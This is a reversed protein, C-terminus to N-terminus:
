KKVAEKLWKSGDRVYIITKETTSGVNKVPEAREFWWHNSDFLKGNIMSYQVSETIYGDEDFFETSVHRDEGTYYERRALKGNLYFLRRTPKGDCNLDYRKVIQGWNYWEWHIVGDYIHVIEKVADASKKAKKESVEKSNVLWRNYTWSFDAPKDTLIKLIKGSQIKLPLSKKSELGSWEVAAATYTGAGPLTFSTGPRIPSSKIKVGDKFINYGTTEWHNEGPILEAYDATEQLFPRDPNRVVAVYIDSSRQLMLPSDMDKIVSRISQAPLPLDNRMEEPILLSEFSTLIQGKVLSSNSTGYLGRSLGEFSTDTKREYGLVEGGFGYINVLRGKEPFDKTSKVIIRDGEADEIIETFPGNVLDYTSIFAIKTGDPSGKADIDYPGSNDRLNPFCLFSLSKLVEWGDGSRIDALQLPGRGGYTSGCIWRGSKGSPCIDGFYINALFHINSPLPEDWKKGRAQYNGCLFYSGDGSWSFHSGDFIPFPDTANSGDLDHDSHMRAVFPIDVTLKVRKKLYDQFLKEDAYYYQRMGANRSVVMPHVPNIYLSGYNCGGKFQLEEPRSDEKIPIRLGKQLRTKGWDGDFFTDLAQLGYIWRDECDTYKLTQVGYAIRKLKQTNVDLWIVQIGKGTPPGDQPVTKTYFLWNHNNAWRPGTGNDIKSDNMKYLDYLHVEAAEATGFEKDDAAYHTYCIYRGDPSWCQTNHYNGWDRITSHNTVRWVEIAKSGSQQFREIQAFSQATNLGIFFVFVTVFISIIHRNINM